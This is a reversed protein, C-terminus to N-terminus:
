HGEHSEHISILSKLIGLSHYRKTFRGFCYKKALTSGSEWIEKIEKLDKITQGIDNRDRCIQFSNPNMIPNLTENVVQILIYNIFDETKKYKIGRKQLFATEMETATNEVTSCLARLEDRDPGGGGSSGNVQARSNFSLVLISFILFPKQIRKANM